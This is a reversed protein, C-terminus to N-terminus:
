SEEDNQIEEIVDRIALITVEEDNIIDKWEDRLSKIQNIIDDVKLCIDDELANDIGGDEDYEVFGYTIYIGGNWREDEDSNTL